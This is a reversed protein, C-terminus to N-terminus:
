YRSDFDLELPSVFRYQRETLSVLLKELVDVSNENTDHLLVLMDDSLQTM